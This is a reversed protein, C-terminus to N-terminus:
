GKQYKGQVGWKEKLKPWTTTAMSWRKLFERLKMSHYDAIIAEKHKEFYEPWNKRKKPRPPVPEKNYSQVVEAVEETAEKEVMIVEKKRANKGCFLCTDEPRDLDIMTQQGCNACDVPFFRSM